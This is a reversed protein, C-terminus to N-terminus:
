DIDIDTLGLWTVKYESISVNFHVDTFRPMSLRAPFGTFTLHASALKPQYGRGGWGGGELERM